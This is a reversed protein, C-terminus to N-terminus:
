TADEVQVDHERLYDFLEKEYDDIEAYEYLDIEKGNKLLIVYSPFNLTEGFGNVRDPRYYVREIDTYAYYEGQLSLFTTNDIFGVERFNLNWKALFASGIVGVAVLVAAFGRMFKDEGGGNQITDMELMQEYSRKFFWKYFTFRTFYSICIATIFGFLICFPFNYQPGLLLVSGRREILTFLGFVALFVVSTVPSLLVWSLFVTLFEKPDNKLVGKDNYREAKSCACPLEASPQADTQWLRLLRTEYGTLKKIKRLQKVAISRNGKLFNIFADSNFRVAFFRYITLDDIYDLTDAEFLWEMEETYHAYITQKREPDCGIAAITDLMPTLVNGICDFAEIMVDADTILPIFLPTVTDVDCYDTLLPLPVYLSDDTKGLRVGCGLVSNVVGLTGHAVYIFRVSFSHYYM